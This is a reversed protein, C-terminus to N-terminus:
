RGLHRAAGGRERQDDGGPCDDARGAARGVVQDVVRRVVGPQVALGVARGRDVQRGDVEVDIQGLQVGGGGDRELLVAVHRELDAPQGDVVDDVAAAVAAVLQDAPLQPDGVDAARQDHPIAEGRVRHGIAEQGAARRHHPRVEAAVQEGTVGAGGIAHAERQV